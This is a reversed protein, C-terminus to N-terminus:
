VTYTCGTDGYVNPYLNIAEYEGTGTRNWSATSSVKTSKSADTYFEMRYTSGTGNAKMAYNNSNTKITYALGSSCAVQFSLPNMMVGSNNQVTPIVGIDYNGRNTEVTGSARVDEVEKIQNPLVYETMKKDAISLIKYHMNGSNKIQLTNGKCELKLKPDQNKPLIFVPISLTKLVRTQGEVKDVNLEKLIFYNELKNQQKDSLIGQAYFLTDYAFVGSGLTASAADDRKAISYNLFASTNDKFYKKKQQRFSLVEKELCEKKPKLFLKENSEQYEGLRSLNKSSCKGYTINEDAIYQGNDATFM